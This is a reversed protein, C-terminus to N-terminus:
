AQRHRKDSKHYYWTTNIVIARYHLNPTTLGGVARKNNLTTKAIRLKTTTTKVQKTKGYSSSFKGKL